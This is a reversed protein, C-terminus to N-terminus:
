AQKGQVKALLAAALGFAASGVLLGILLLYHGVVREVRAPDTGQAINGALSMWAMALTFAWGAALWRNTDTRRIVVSLGGTFLLAAAVYDILWFPWWQWHGWNIMTELGALTIGTAIAWWASIKLSLAM